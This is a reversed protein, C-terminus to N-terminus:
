TVIIAVIIPLTVPTITSQTTEKNPKIYEQFRHNSPSM